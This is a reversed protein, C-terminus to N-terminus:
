PTEGAVEKLAAELRAAEALGCELYAASLLSLDEATAKGAAKLPELLAAAVEWRGARGALRALARARGEDEPWVWAALPFVRDLEEARGLKFLLYLVEEYEAAARGDLWLPGGAGPVPPSDGRLAGLLWAWLPESRAEAELLAPRTLAAAVRYLVRAQTPGYRLPELLRLAAKFRGAKVAAEARRILEATQAPPGWAELGERVGALYAAGLLRGYAAELTPKLEPNQGLGGELLGVQARLSEVEGPSLAPVAPYGPLLRPALEPHKHAFVVAMRGCARQRGVYYDTDAPHHHYAVAEPRYYVKLGRQALRYGFEIDDWGYTFAPDFFEGHRIIFDRKLSLCTGYFHWFDVEKGPILGKFDFQQGGAGTVYGMIPSIELEPAWEVRGLMGVWVEPHDRHFRIHAELGGPPLIVDDNLFLLVHGRAARIGRNRAAALGRHPGRILRLRLSRRFPGAAGVADPRDSGDDVVVVELDRRPIRRAAASLAELCRALEQPRNYTAIVVSLFPRPKSYYTLLRYDLYKGPAAEFRYADDFLVCRGRRIRGILGKVDRYYEPYATDTKKDPPNLLLNVVVIDGLRELTRLFERPDPVHEIVDFSYVLRHRPIPDKEIDYVPAGVGRRELRWKLYRTSPNDFDAFAVRRYGLGMLRLGDAGIGCGYDLIPDELAALARVLRLGPAKAGSLDWLTLDYLYTRSRRYFEAPDSFGAFEADVRAAVDRFLDPDFEPGLYEKLEVAGGHLPLSRGGRAVPRLDWLAGSRGYAMGCYACRLAEPEPILGRRCAPCALVKFLDPEAALAKLIPGPRGLLEVVLNARYPTGVAAQRCLRIWAKLESRAAEVAERGVGPLHDFVTLILHFLVNEGPVRKLRLKLNLAEAERRLLAEVEGPDPLPFAGHEEVWPPVTGFIARHWRGFAADARRAAEGVPFTIFVRRAAVRLAEKLVEPRRDPSVHELLDALIVSEFVGDPFPLAAADARLAFNLPHPPGEFTLDVGVFPRGTWFGVGFPGSGVDLVPRRFRRGLFPAYRALWNLM